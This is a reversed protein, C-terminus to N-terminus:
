VIPLSPAIRKLARTPSVATALAVNPKLEVLSQALAPLASADGDAYRQDVDVTKGEIYGLRQLNDRFAAINPEDADRSSINLVGVRPRPDAARAAVPWAAASGAIGKIFDRRRM